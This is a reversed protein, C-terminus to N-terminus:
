LKKSHIEEPGHSSVEIRPMVRVKLYIGLLVISFGILTFSWENWLLFAIINLLICIFLIFLDKKRRM